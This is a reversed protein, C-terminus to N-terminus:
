NKEEFPYQDVVSLMKYLNGENSFIEKANRYYAELFANRETNDPISM